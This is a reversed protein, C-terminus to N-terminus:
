NSTDLSLFSKLFSRPWNRQETPPSVSAWPPVPARGVGSSTPSPGPSSDLGRVFSGARGGRQVRHLNNRSEPFPSNIFKAVNQFLLAMFPCARPLSPPVQGKLSPTPLPLSFRGAAEARAWISADLPFSFQLFSSTWHSASSSALLRLAMHVQNLHGGQAEAGTQSCEGRPAETIVLGPLHHSRKSFSYFHLYGPGLELKCLILSEWSPDWAATNELLMEHHDADRSVQFEPALSM